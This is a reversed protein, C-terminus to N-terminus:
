ANSKTCFPSTSIVALYAKHTEYFEDMTKFVPVDKAFERCGGINIEVIGKLVLEPDKNDLMYQLYLRRYRGVGVPLIKM